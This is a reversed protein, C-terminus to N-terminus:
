ENELEEIRQKYREILAKNQSKKEELKRKENAETLNVFFETQEESSMFLLSSPITHYENDYCGRCSTDQVIQLNNEWVDWREVGYAVHTNNAKCWLGFVASVEDDLEKKLREYLALRAPTIRKM